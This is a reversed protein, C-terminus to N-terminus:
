FNTEGFYMMFPKGTITAMGSPTGSLNIKNLNLVADEETPHLSFTYYDIVRIYYTSGSTLGTVPSLSTYVIPSGTTYRYGSSITITDNSVNVSTSNQSFSISDEHRAIPRGPRYIEVFIYKPGTTGVYYEPVIIDISTSSARELYIWEGPDSAGTDAWRIWVDYYPLEAVPNSSLDKYIAVSDWTMTVFSSGLKELYMYGPAEITGRWFVVQPDVEFIPSWYSLNNQNETIIRYRVNYKQTYIDMDQLSEKPIIIKPM